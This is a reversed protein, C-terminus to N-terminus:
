ISVVLVATLFVEEMSNMFENNSQGHPSVSAIMKSTFKENSIQELQYLEKQQILASELVHLGGIMNGRQFSINGYAVHQM